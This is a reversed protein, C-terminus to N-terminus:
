EMRFMIPLSFYSKVPEEDELAPKWRPMLKIVRMAEEDLLPSVSRAPFVDTVNGDEAVVFRIVVRGFIGEVKASDPYRMHKAVFERLDGPFEPMVNYPPCEREKGDPTYCSGSVASDKVFIQDRKLKGNAYYTKVHGDKRGAGYTIERKLIGTEPYYYEWQGQKLGKV